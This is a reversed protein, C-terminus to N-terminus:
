KQWVKVWDVQMTMPLNRDKIFPLEYYSSLLSLVLYVPASSIDRTVRLTTHGDISFVYASPTWVVTYTHFKDSAYANRGMIGQVTRAKIPGGSSVFKGNGNPRHVYSRLGGGPSGPRGFYEITDVEARPSQLWFSGHAGKPNHFKIRASFRGYKFTNAAATGIMANLFQGDPCKNTVNPRKSKDRVVSLRVTGNKVKVMSKDPRSCARTAPQNTRFAWAKSLSRGNFNDVFKLKYGGDTQVAGNPSATLTPASQAARASGDAFAMGGCALGVATLAAAARTKMEAM